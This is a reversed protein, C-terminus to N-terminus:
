LQHPKCRWRHPADEGHCYAQLTLRHQDSSQPAAHADFTARAIWVAVTWVAHTKDLLVEM